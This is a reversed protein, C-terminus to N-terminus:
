ALREILARYRARGPEEDLARRVEEDRQLEEPSKTRRILEMTEWLDFLIHVREADTLHATMAVEDRLWENERRERETM